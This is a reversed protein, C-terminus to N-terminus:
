VSYDGMYIFMKTMIYQLQSLPVELIRLIAKQILGKEPYIMM